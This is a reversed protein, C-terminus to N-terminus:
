CLLDDITENSKSSRCTKRKEHMGHGRFDSKLKREPSFQTESESWGVIQPDM